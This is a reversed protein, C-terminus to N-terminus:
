GATKLTMNGSTTEPAQAWRDTQYVEDREDNGDNDYFKYVGKGIFCFVPDNVEGASIFERGYM